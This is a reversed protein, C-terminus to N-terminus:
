SYYYLYLVIINYKLILNHITKDTRHPIDVIKKNSFYSKYKKDKKSMVYDTNDIVLSYLSYNGSFPSLGGLLPLVKLSMCIKKDLIYFDRTV